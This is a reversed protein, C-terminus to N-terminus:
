PIFQYQQFKVCNIRGSFTCLPPYDRDSINWPLYYTTHSQPIWLTPSVTRIQKLAQTKKVSMFTLKVKEIQRNVCRGKLVVMM